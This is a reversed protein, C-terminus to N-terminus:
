RRASAEFAAQAHKRILTEIHARTEEAVHMTYWEPFELQLEVKNDGFPLANMRVEQMLRQVFTGNSFCRQIEDPTM